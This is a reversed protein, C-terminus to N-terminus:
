VGRDARRRDKGCGGSAAAALDALAVVRRRIASRALLRAISVDGDPVLVRNWEGLKVCVERQVLDTLSIGVAQLPCVEISKNM